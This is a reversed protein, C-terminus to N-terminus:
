GIKEVMLRTYKPRFGIHKRYRSKSKFKYVEIKEGKEEENVVKFSVKVDDLMPKGVRVGDGNKYLLVDYNIQDPSLKNVLIEKGEFVKYQKGGLKLVAYKDAVQSMVNM